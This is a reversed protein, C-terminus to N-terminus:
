IVTYQMCLEKEEDDNFGMAVINDDDEGFEEEKITAQSRVSNNNNNSIGNKQQLKKAYRELSIEVFHEIQKESGQQLCVYVFITLCICILVTFLKVVLKPLMFESKKSGLGYWNLINALLHIIFFGLAGALWVTSITNSRLSMYLQIGRYLPVSLALLDFIGIMASPIRSKSLGCTLLNNSASSATLAMTIIEVLSQLLRETDSASGTDILVRMGNDNILTIAGVMEM